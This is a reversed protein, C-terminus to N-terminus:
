GEPLQAASILMALADEDEIAEEATIAANQAFSALLQRVIRVRSRNPQHTAFHQAIRETIVTPSMKDELSEAM